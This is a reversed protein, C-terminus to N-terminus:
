EVEWNDLGPFVEISAWTNGAEQGFGSVFIKLPISPPSLHGRSRYGHWMSRIQDFAASTIAIERIENPPSYFGLAEQTLESHALVALAIQKKLSDATPFSDWSESVLSTFSFSHLKHSM